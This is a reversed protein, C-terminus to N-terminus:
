NCKDGLVDVESIDNLAKLAAFADWIELPNLLKPKIIEILINNGTLYLCLQPIPILIKPSRTSQDNGRQSIATPNRYSSRQM